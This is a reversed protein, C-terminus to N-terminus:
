LGLGRVIVSVRDTARVDTSGIAAVVLYEGAPVDRWTFSYLVRDGEITWDSRRSFEGSDAQVSVWRDNAGARVRVSIELNTPAFSILPSVRLTIPKPDNVVAHALMALFWLTVVFSALLPKM